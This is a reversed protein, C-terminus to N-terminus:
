VLPCGHTPDPGYETTVLADRCLTLATELNSVPPRVGEPNLTDWVVAVARVTKVAQGNQILLKAHLRESCMDQRVDTQRIVALDIVM